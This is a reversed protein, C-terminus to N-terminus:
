LNQYDGICLNGLGLYCWLILEGGKLCDGGFGMPTM